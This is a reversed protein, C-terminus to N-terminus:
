PLYNASYGGDDIDPYEYLRVATVNYKARNADEQITASEFVLNRPLTNYVAEVIIDKSSAANVGPGPANFLNGFTTANYAGTSSVDRRIDGNLPSSLLTTYWGGKMGPLDFTANTDPNMSTTGPLAQAGMTAEPNGTNASVNWCGTIEQFATWRGAVTQLSLRMTAQRFTTQSTSSTAIDSVCYYRARYLKGPQLRPMTAPTANEFLGLGIIFRNTQDANSAGSDVVVGLGAAGSDTPLGLNGGAGPTTYLIQRYGPTLVGEANFGGAILPLLSANAGTGMAAGKTYTLLPTGGAADTLADYSGVTCQTLFLTANAPDPYAFSEMVPQIPMQTAYPVDSPDLDVRYLSPKSPTSSPKIYQGAASESAADDTSPYSVAGTATPGTNGTAGYEIHNAGLVAGGQQVRIRFGPVSNVVNPTAGNHYIYFKGRYYKGAGAYAVGTRNQWGVVRSRGSSARVIMQLETPNTVLPAQPTNAPFVDCDNAGDIAENDLGSKEWGIFSTDDRLVNFSTSKADNANDKTKVFITSSTLNGEPDSVFFAVARGVNAAQTQQAVTFGKATPSSWPGPDQSHPSFLIDRFTAYDSTANLSNATTRTPPKAASFGGPAALAIASSGTYISQFGNVEFEKTTNAAGGPGGVGTYDYEAFSWLLNGDPTDNDNVATSFQFANTYVFYNNDTAGPGSAINDEADGIQIDPLGSIVPAAGFATTIGAFSIAAAFLTALFGKTM